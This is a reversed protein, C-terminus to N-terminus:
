RSLGMERRVEELPALEVIQSASMKQRINQRERALDIFFQLGPLNFMGDPSMIQLLQDYTMQAIDPAMTFTSAIMQATEQRHKRIYGMAKLSARIMRRVQDPKKRVRDSSMVLGSFGPVYDGAAALRRFGEKEALFSQPIGLVTAAAAGSKLSIYREQTGGMNVLTVDRSDLGNKEFIEQVMINMMGGPNQAGIVKGKLDKLTKYSPQALLLHDVRNINSMALRLPANAVIANIASVGGLAYDIGGSMIAAMEVSGARVYILQIDIGEERFFGKQRTVESVFFSTITKAPYSVIVKELPQGQSFAGGAWMFFFLLSCTISFFKQRIM